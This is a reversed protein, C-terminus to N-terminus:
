SYTLKKKTKLYCTFFTQNGMALSGEKTMELRRDDQDQRGGVMWQRGGKRFQRRDKSVPKM